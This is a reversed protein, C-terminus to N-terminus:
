IRFMLNFKSQKDIQSMESTNMQIKKIRMETLYDPLKQMPKRKEGSRSKSIRKKIKESIEDDILDTKINKPETYSHASKSRNLNRKEGLDESINLKLDWKYKEALRPNRKVLLVRKSRTKSKNRKKPNPKSNIKLIREELQIRKKDDIKPLLETKVVKSFQKIKMTKYIKDLKEKELLEKHKKSEEVAKQYNLSDPKPLHENKTNIEELKSLRERDKEFILRQRDENVKKAFENLEERQIPKMLIKKEQFIQKEQNKREEAEKNQVELFEKEYRQFVYEENVSNKNKWEDKLKELEEHKQKAKIKLKELNMQYADEREKERQKLMNLSETEKKKIKLKAKEELETLHRTREKQEMEWKKAKSVAQAKDKEFNDLFQKLNFKKNSNADEESMLRQVQEDLSSLKNELVEKSHKIDKIRSKRINDEIERGQMSVNLDIKTLNTLGDVELLKM